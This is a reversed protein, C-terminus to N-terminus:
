NLYIRTFFRNSLYISGKVDGINKIQKHYGGQLSASAKFGEPADKLIINITGGLGDADKDATIAKMVEVGGIIESAVMNLDTSRDNPDTSPAIMGNISVTNYKPELGRIVIKQGEGGERQTMLGPLRGIAEAVNADPLEQLKESSIVNVIGSANLQQKIAAQQGRAQGTVVVEGMELSLDELQINLNRSEGKKLVLPIEQPKYGMYSISLTVNGALVGQITYNGNVDSVTGQKSEKIMITTGVLLDKTKSDMVIGTVTAYQAWSAFVSFLFTIVLFTHKM